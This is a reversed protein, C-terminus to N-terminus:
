TVEIRAAIDSSFISGIVASTPVGRSDLEDLLHSLNDEAVAIILGGSTQADALLLQEAESLGSAFDVHPAAYHLNRRTGGPCLGEALCSRVNEFVPIRDFRLRAGLPRQATASSARLMNGLHGLLGFGTVDTAAHAGAASMAEAASRNLTTMAEIAESLAAVPLYGRKVATTLIGTGIPKTLVLCDGVQLGANSVIKDPHALGTVFLGFKPEEDVISHGGSIAIGAKACIAAAGEFLRALPGLGVREVPWAVFALANLPRAGMAYIDSLANAAAIRGFDFADDVIPPFVDVTEVLALDETLRIVAADDGTTHGILVRPDGFAPLSSLAVRLDAQSIKAACGAARALQTLPIVPQCMRKEM